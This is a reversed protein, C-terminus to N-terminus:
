AKAYAELGARLRELGGKLAVLEDVSMGTARVVCEPIADAEGRLNRGKETLSVRVVREDATDRRRELLGAQELRKVLPTLTSSELGLAQGLAGVTRGDTEWLAVMVLFQPYTLGLRDLLPKYVRNFAHGTAYVSFCLFNELRLLDGPAVAEGPRGDQGPEQGPEQGADPARYDTADRWHAPTSKPNTETASM